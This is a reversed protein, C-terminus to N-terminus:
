FVGEIRRQSGHPQVHLSSRSASRVHLAVAQGKSSSWVVGLASCSPPNARCATPYSGRPPPWRYGGLSRGSMGRLAAKPHRESDPTPLANQFSQSRFIAVTFVCQFVEFFSPYSFWLERSSHGRQRPTPVPNYSSTSNRPIAVM